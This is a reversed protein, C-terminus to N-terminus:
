MSSPMRKMLPCAVSHPFVANAAVACWVHTVAMPPTGPPRAKAATIIALTATASARMRRAGGASAAAVAANMRYAVHTTSNWFGSWSRCRAGSTTSPPIM